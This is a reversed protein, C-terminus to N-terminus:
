LASLGLRQKETIIIPVMVRGVRTNDLIMEIPQKPLDEFLGYITEAVIASIRGYDFGDRAGTLQSGTVNYSGKLDLNTPVSDNIKKAVTNMEDEFGGGLGDAMNEGIEAFVKSPSKIGLFDKVGGVIGGFFGSIQDGLWKGMSKIGEWVGKILDKGIEWLQSYYNTFGEVFAKIIQPISKILDPIAEILGKALMVVLQIGAKILKPLNETIAEILKTIIVPIKDILRPLANILGEALALIIAISADVLMDINDILTEVITLVTDVIAPILEPLADVIGMALSLIIALAAEILLPLNDIIAEVITMIAQTAAPMLKPLAELIASLVKEFLEMVTDILIPLMPGIADLLADLAEPLAEVLNDLIPVVNDIVHGFADIVNGTLNTIDADANGLGGVLSDMSSNFLGLAGTITETSEKAFNGAYQETNEFFMQMAVEAKEAQSATAWTFDLGKALAYAEINTANMAVGLNDMMTFNGKAAGAVSDLAQQMDIGMVSAMDAARQMAKETLELSKQQEIGSGQFLAGMKNATTLYDSQSAGMNKYADEGTKQIREAYEGFVAESGGLNQELEGFSTVVDKALKATAAGAAVAVTGMAVGVGKLIGGLKDFKSGSKEAEDGADKIGDGLDDSSDASKDLEREMTILERNANNLQIQWNQTRRDNEGFNEAANKLAQQLTSIKDKQTDISENLVKNRATTAELSKDNQDFQTTVLKMESGLVRFQQNIDRIATKFEKEGEISIKPGINATM